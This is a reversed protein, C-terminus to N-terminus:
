KVEEQGIKWITTEKGKCVQEYKSLTIVQNNIALQLHWWDCIDSKM